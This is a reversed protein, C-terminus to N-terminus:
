ILWPEWSMIIEARYSYAPLRALRAYHSAVDGSFPLCISGPPLHSSLFFYFFLCIFLYFLYVFIFFLALGCFILPVTVHRAVLNFVFWGLSCPFFLLFCGQRKAESVRARHPFFGRRTGPSTLSFTFSGAFAAHILWDGQPSNVQLIFSIYSTPLLRAGLGWVM